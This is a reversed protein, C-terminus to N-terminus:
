RTYSRSVDLGAADLLTEDSANKGRALLCRCQKGVAIIQRQLRCARERTVENGKRADQPPRHSDRYKATM